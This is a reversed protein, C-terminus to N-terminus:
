RKSKTSKSTKASAAARRTKEGPKRGLGIELALASRTKSYNPATMPYDAPLGWKRRYEDPTLNYRTRIYRKLMKLKAGDELCVIYDPTVSKKVPVAPEAASPTESPSSAAALAEHVRAILNPLDSAAISNRGAYSSVIETTLELLNPKGTM